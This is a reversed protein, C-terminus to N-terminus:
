QIRDAVRSQFKESNTELDDDHIGIPLYSKIHRLHHRQSLLSVGKDLCVEIVDWKLHKEFDVLGDVAECISFM